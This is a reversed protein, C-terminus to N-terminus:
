HTMDHVKDRTADSAAEIDKGAGKITRCGAMLAAVLLLALTTVIAIANRMVHEKGSYCGQAPVAVGPEAAMSAAVSKRM